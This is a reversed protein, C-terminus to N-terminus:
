MTSHLILKANANVAVVSNSLINVFEDTISLPDVIDVQMYYLLIICM